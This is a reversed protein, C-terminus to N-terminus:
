YILTLTAEKVYYGCSEIIDRCDDELATKSMSVIPQASGNPSPELHINGQEDVLVYIPTNKM